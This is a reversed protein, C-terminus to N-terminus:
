SCIKQQETAKRREGMVTRGGLLRTHGCECMCLCNHEKMLQRLNKKTKIGVEMFDDTDGCAGALRSTRIWGQQGSTPPGNM